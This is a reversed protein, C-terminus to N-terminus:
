NDPQDQHTTRACFIEKSLGLALWEDELTKSFATMLFLFLVTAMIDGKKVGVKFGISKKVKGIIINFIIKNYM